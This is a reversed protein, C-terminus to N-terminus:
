YDGIVTKPNYEDTATKHPLQYNNNYAFKPEKEVEIPKGFSMKGLISPRGNVNSNM